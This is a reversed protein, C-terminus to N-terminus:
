FYLKKFFPEGEFIANFRVNKSDELTNIYYIIFFVFQFIGIMKFFYNLFHNVGSFLM